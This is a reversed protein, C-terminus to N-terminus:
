KGSTWSGKYTFGIHAGWRAVNKMKGNGDRQGDANREGIYEGGFSWDLWEGELPEGQAGPDIATFTGRGKLADDQFAGEYVIGPESNNTGYLWNLHLFTAKGHGHRTCNADRQGEYYSGDREFYTVGLVM